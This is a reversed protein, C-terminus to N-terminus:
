VDLFAVPRLFYRPHTWRVDVSIWRELTLPTPITQVVRVRVKATLFAPRVDILTLSEGDPYEVTDGVKLVKGSRADIVKMMRM